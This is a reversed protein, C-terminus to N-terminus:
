EEIWSAVLVNGSEWGGHGPYTFEVAEFWAGLPGWRELLGDGFVFEVEHVWGDDDATGTGAHVDYCCSGGWVHAVVGRVVGGYGM